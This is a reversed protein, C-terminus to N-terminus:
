KSLAAPTLPSDQGVRENKLSEAEAKLSAQYEALIEDTMARTLGGDEFDKEGQLERYFQGVWYDREARTHPPRPLSRQIQSELKSLRRLLRSM